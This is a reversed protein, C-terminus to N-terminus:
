FVPCPIISECCDMFVFKIELDGFNNEQLVQVEGTREQGIPLFAKLEPTVQVHYNGEELEIKLVGNSDTEGVDYCENLKNNGEIKFFYLEANEFLGNILVILAKM